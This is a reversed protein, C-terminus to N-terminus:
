GRSKRSATTGDPAIVEAAVSRLPARASVSIALQDGIRQRIAAFAERPPAAVPIDAVPAEYVWRDGVLTFQTRARLPRGIGGPLRGGSPDIPGVVTPALEIRLRWPQGNITDDRVNDLTFRYSRGRGVIGFAEIPSMVPPALVTGAAVAAVRETARGLPDVLRVSISAAHAADHRRLLVAYHGPGTRWLGSGPAAPAAEPVEPLGTRARLLPDAVGQELAEVELVHPGLPTDGAPADTSFAALVAGPGGGPWTMVIASLTPPGAPPVIVPVAPSALSRGGLVGRQPLPDALAVARYWVQKWSGDPADTGTAVDIWGGAAPATPSTVWAGASGAIEAVPLGMGDVARAADAVRTRYLRIRAPRAGADPRTEIRLRAAFGGGQAIRRVELRPPAPEAVKPAAYVIMADAAASGSPWPAEIGGASVPLVIWGHIAQSGRPITVDLSTAGLLADNVRTFADRDPDANFAAKMAALRESLTAEPGARPRGTRDLLVFENSTYVVYGDAAAQANWALRAHGEGAADPLSTLPVVEIVTTARARPDSGYALKPTSWASVRMPALREQLSAELALGAHPTAAFDLAFGPVTLRYRRSTGQALGPAVEADGQENLSLIDGGSATPADGAFTVAVAKTAGGLSVQVAGPMPGPPPDDHRSAAPFLRGRVAVSAVSRVRWDLVFEVRLEAPCVTAPSGPDTPVLAADIIKVPDPAPQTSAFPQATWSSWIGFINQTAVGYRASVSGPANPIPYGSDTASQRTPEPDEPSRANGIPLLGPAAPRKEMLPLAPDGPLALDSRAAAFSAVRAINDLELREWSLRVAASWPGDPASPQHHGLFDLALDAPVPPPVVLRPRPIMAAFEVESRNGAADLPLWLGTVMFDWDSVGKEDFLSRDGLLIPPVDEYVYGTGFGLAVAQLPDCSVTMQLLTLPAVVAKGPDGSMRQGSPNEPPDIQYDRTFGAQQDPPLSMAEHLLPLLEAEADKVLDVASPLDWTPALAGDPFTQYWGFPNIGRTMRDAAADSASVEAGVLGQKIGHAQPALDAWGAEDVPLGVTEILEWGSVAHASSQAFGTVGAVKAPGTLLFATIYPAQFSLRNSGDAPLAYPLVGLMHEFGVGDALPILSGAAGDPGAELLVSLSVVAHPLAFVTGLPPIPIEEPDIKPEELPFAPRRWVKFPEAPLGIRPNVQWRLFVMRPTDSLDIPPRPLGAFLARTTILAGQGKFATQDFTRPPAM